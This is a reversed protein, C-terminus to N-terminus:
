RSRGPGLWLGAAFLLAYLLLLQATGALTRNLAAGELTCLERVRRVALPLTLVPALTSVPALGAAVLAFPAVQATALLLVYEAIGATRGFVVPLTRRGAIRDTAADRVNNVVLIATALAGVPLAAGWALPPVRGVQVFVTGCVAVFGFFALVFLDGLGNYALPSPGATYAIGAAISCLGIAIVPWGATWALYVGCVTAAAFALAAGARVARPPLLGAQTVRLPGVRAATDTGREFDAVDNVFNTGVQLLLAGCLAALAPGAAFGGLDFAVASGVVVPAAAAPLTRPRAALLYPTLRNM